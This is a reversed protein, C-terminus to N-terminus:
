EPGSLFVHFFWFFCIFCFVFGFIHHAIELPVWPFVSHKFAGTNAFLEARNMPGLNMGGATGGRDSIYHLVIEFSGQGQLM